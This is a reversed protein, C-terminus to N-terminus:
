RPPGALTVVVVSARPLDITFQPGAAIATSTVAVADPTAFTNAAGPTAAALTLQTARPPAAWGAITMRLRAPADANTNVAKIVCRRGDSSRSATVDVWPVGSPGDPVDFTPSVVATELRDAGLHQNYLQVVRYTPTVYVGHRGAQIIGGPWGNVLDSEASMAVLPSTREFVNMLRAGYVAAEMSQQVATADGTLVAQALPSDATRDLDEQSPKGEPAGSPPNLSIADRAFFTEFVADFRDVEDATKALTSCLADKFLPRDAYGTVMIARSADIAEAPSIRVDAARLARFFQELTHQV